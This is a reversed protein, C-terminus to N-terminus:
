TSASLFFAFTSILLFARFAFDAVFAGQNKARLEVFLCGAPQRKKRWKKMLLFKTQPTKAATMLLHEFCPFTAKCYLNYKIQM